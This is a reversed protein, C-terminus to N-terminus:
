RILLPSQVNENSPNIIQLDGPGAEVGFSTYTGSYLGLFPRNATDTLPFSVGGNSCTIPKCVVSNYNIYGNSISENLNMCQQSLASLAQAALTANALSLNLQYSLATPTPTVPTGYFQIGVSSFNDICPAIAGPLVENKSLDYNYPGRSCYGQPGSFYIGVSM